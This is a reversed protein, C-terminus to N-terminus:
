NKIDFALLEHGWSLDKLGTEEMEVRKLWHVLVRAQMPVGLFTPTEARGIFDSMQKTNDM